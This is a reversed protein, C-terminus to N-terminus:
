PSATSMVISYTTNLQSSSWISNIFCTPIIILAYNVNEFFYISMTSKGGGEGGLGWVVDWELGKGLSCM